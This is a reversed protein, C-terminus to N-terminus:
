RRRYVYFDAISTNEPDEAGEPYPNKEVAILEFEPRNAAVWRSFARYRVHTGDWPADEDNSYIVVFRGARDFLTAMYREFVPDEILHYIVDLSLTTDAREDAGLADVLIFRKSPDNAFRGATRALVTPSIDVGVYSPCDLMALQAGDGCGFEILSAVQNDAVFHNLFDAKFKALRNYSGAGSNGGDAYRQEWYEPSGFHDPSGQALRRLRRVLPVAGPIKKVLERM